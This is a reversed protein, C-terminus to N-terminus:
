PLDLKSVNVHGKKKKGAVYVNCTPFFIPGDKEDFYTVYTNNEFGVYINNM